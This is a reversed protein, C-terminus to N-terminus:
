GFVWVPEGLRALLHLCSSCFVASVSRRRQDLLEGLQGDFCPLGDEGHKVQAQAVGDPQLHEAGSEALVDAPLGDRGAVAVLDDGGAGEDGVM